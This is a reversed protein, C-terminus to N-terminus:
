RPTGLPNLLELPHVAASKDSLWLEAKGESSSACSPLRGAFALQSALSVWSRKLCRDEVSSRLRAARVLDRVASGELLGELTGLWPSAATALRRRFSEPLAACCAVGLLIRVHTELGRETSRVAPHLGVTAVPALRAPVLGAPPANRAVSGLLEAELSAPLQFVVLALAIASWSGDFHEFLSSEALCLHLPQVAGHVLLKMARELAM